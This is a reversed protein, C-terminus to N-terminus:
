LRDTTYGSGDFRLVKTITSKSLQQKHAVYNGHDTAFLIPAEGKPDWNFDSLYFREESKITDVVFCKKASPVTACFFGEKVEDQDLNILSAFDISPTGYSIPM